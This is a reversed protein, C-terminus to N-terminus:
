RRERGSSPGHGLRRTSDSLRREFVQGVRHALSRRAHTRQIARWDAQWDTDVLVSAYGALFRAYDSRNVFARGRANRRAVSRFLRRLNHRRAEDTLADRRVSGDLDIVHLVPADLEAELVLVNRPQLDAHAVGFAHLEAVLRGLARTVAFRQAAPLGGSRARELVAALDLAGEVRETWLELHFAGGGVSRAAAGLVRPTHFGAARLEASLVLERFPREPDRFRAGTAWRLLGGHHFRRVVVTREALRYECLPRRGHLTSTEVDGPETATVGLAALGDAVEDDVAVVGRDARWVTYGAPLEALIPLDQM